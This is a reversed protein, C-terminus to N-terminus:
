FSFYLSVNPTRELAYTDVREVSLSSNVRYYRNVVNLRDFINTLSVSARLNTKGIDWSKSASFNVVFFDPLRTNNPDNYQIQPDGNSDSIVDESAPTTVPRGSHWKSGLALKLGRWEYIAAAAMTHRLEFNNPFASPSLDEFDYQNDNFGYSIWSYFRGFNKQLLLESGFVRYSGASKVFEFQNQFGQSGTSIGDVKKYYNDITFLWNNRKFTLGASVQISEQLPTENDDVMTWRRKEIGLFDQQRDIVQALTQSKMEGLIELRLPGSLQWGFQLRPEPRWVHIREFYNFRWGALVSFKDSESEWRTEAIGVHAHMVETVNRSFAPADIQDINTVGTEHFQYGITFTTSPLLRMSQSFNFGFGVVQNEQTTTLNNSDLSETSAMLKYNSVYSEVRTVHDDDWRSVWSAGAGFHRQSLDNNQGSGDLFQDIILSNGMGIGDIFFEHKGAVKQRYQLTVDNFYFHEDTNVNVTGTNNTVITNQFVRNRYKRYTPSDFGDTFSRRASVSFSANDSMKVHAYGALSILDAAVIFATKDIKRDRSSVDVVSSVSEGFLASTGNIAVSITQPLVPNFASILGFFHGTQFMRIGNWLFLNQDHTGGRASINSITEDENEIGPLEQMTQLVDPESLGPLIGFKKPNIKFSGDDNKTIGTTLFRQPAVEDLANVIPSLLIQPCDPKYLAVPAIRFHEYNQHSIEIDEPSIVPLEFYGRADSVTSASTGSIFLSAAEIPLRTEKDILYGCLPKDLKEDNSITFASSGISQFKLKTLGSIYDLAATLPLDPNPPAIKYVVIEDEIYNFTVRHREGLVELIQKLPQRTGQQSWASISFFATLIVLWTNRM